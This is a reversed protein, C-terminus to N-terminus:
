NDKRTLSIYQRGENYAMYYKGVHYIDDETGNGLTDSTEYEDHVDFTEILIPLLKANGIANRINILVQAKEGQFFFIQSFM